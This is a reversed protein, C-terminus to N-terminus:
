PNEFIEHEHLLKGEFLRLELQSIANKEHKIGIQLHVITADSAPGLRRWTLPTASQERLRAIQTPSALGVALLVAFIIYHKLMMIADIRPFSKARPKKKNGWVTGCYPYRLRLTSARSRCLSPWSSWCENTLLWREAYLWIMEASYCCIQKRHWATIATLSYQYRTPVHMIM